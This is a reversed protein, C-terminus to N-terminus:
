PSTRDARRQDAERYQKYVEPDVLDKGAADMLPQWRDRSGAESATDELVIIDVTKGLFPGLEPLHLTETEIKRRIRIASM